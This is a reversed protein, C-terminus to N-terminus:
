FFKIPDLLWLLFIYGHILPLLCSSCQLSIAWCSLQLFAWSKVVQINKFDDFRSVKNVNQMIIKNIEERWNGFYEPLILIHLQVQPCFPRQLIQQDPLVVPDQNRPQLEIHHVGPCVRHCTLLIVMKKDSISIL